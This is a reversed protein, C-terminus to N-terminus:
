CMNSLLQSISHDMINPAVVGIPALLSNKGARTCHPTFARCSQATM